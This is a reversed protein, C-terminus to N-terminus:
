ANKVLILEVPVSLLNKFDEGSDQMDEDEEDYYWKIRIESKEKMSELTRLIDILSKSSSTNFYDLRVTLVTKESPCRKYQELWIFMPAYFEISNEPISRGSIEFEGNDANLYVKPTKRSPELTYNEM